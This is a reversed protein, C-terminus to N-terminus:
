RKGKSMAKDVSFSGSGLFLLCLYILLYLLAMEKKAFPQDSNAVFAAVSMTIILPITALRTGLGLIIFLSCIVEAFLTLLLSITEGLGLPDAFSTNGQMLKMLKPMGHTLMFLGVSIRLILLLYNAATININTQFLKKM